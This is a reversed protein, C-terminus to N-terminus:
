YAVNNARDNQSKHWSVSRRYHWATQITTCTLLTFQQMIAILLPSTTQSLPLQSGGVTCLRIQIVIYFFSKSPKIM